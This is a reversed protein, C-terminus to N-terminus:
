ADDFETTTASESDSKGNRSNQNRDTVIEEEEAPIVPPLTPFRIVQRPRVNSDEEFDDDQDEEEGNERALIAELEAIGNQWTTIESEIALATEVAVGREKRKLEEEESRSGTSRQVSRRVAKVAEFRERLDKSLVSTRGNQKGNDSTTGGLSVDDDEMTSLILQMDTMCYELNFFFGQRELRKGERPLM